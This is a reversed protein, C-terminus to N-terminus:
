CTQMNPSFVPHVADREPCEPVGCPSRRKRLAIGASVSFYLIRFTTFHTKTCSRLNSIPTKIMRLVVVADDHNGWTAYVPWGFRMKDALFDSFVGLLRKQIIAEKWNQADGKLLSAKEDAPLASHIVLLYLERQSMAEVSTADYFGFDGAHICVDAKWEEAYASIRDIHRGHTDSILLIKM